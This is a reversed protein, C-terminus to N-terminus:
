LATLFISARFGLEIYPQQTGSTINLVELSGSPFSSSVTTRVQLAEQALTAPLRQRNPLARGARAGLGSDDAEGISGVLLDTAGGCLLPKFNLKVAEIVHSDHMRVPCALGEIGECMRLITGQASGLQSGNSCFDWAALRDCDPSKVPNKSFDPSGRRSKRCGHQFTLREKGM